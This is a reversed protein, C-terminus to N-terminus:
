DWTQWVVTSGIEAATFTVDASGDLTKSTAGVQLDIATVWKDAASVTGNSRGTGGNAIGLVGGVGIDAINGSGDFKSSANTSALNVKFTRGTALKTASSANGTLSAKITAPLTM